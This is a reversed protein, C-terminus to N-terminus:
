LGYWCDIRFVSELRLRKALEVGNEASHIRILTFKYKM